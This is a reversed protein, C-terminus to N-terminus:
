CSFTEAPLMVIHWPYCIARSRCTPPGAILIFQGV